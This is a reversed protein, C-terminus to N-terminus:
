VPEDFFRAVFEDDALPEVPLNVVRVNPDTWEYGFRDRLHTVVALRFVEGPTYEGGKYERAAARAEQKVIDVHRHFDALDHTPHSLYAFAVGQRLCFLM